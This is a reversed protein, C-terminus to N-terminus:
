SDTSLDEIKKVVPFRSLYDVIGLYNKNNLNFMNAAIM